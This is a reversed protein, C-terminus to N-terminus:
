GDNGDFARFPGYLGDNADEPTQFTLERLGDSPLEAAPTAYPGVTLRSEEALVTCKPCLRDSMSCCDPNPIIGDDPM